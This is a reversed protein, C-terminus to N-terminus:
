RSQRHGHTPQTTHGNSTGIPTRVHVSMVPSPTSSGEHGGAVWEPRGVREVVNRGTKVEALLPRSEESVSSTGGASMGWAETEPDSLQLSGSGTCVLAHSCDDARGRYHLGGRADHLRGADGVIGQAFNSVPFPADDAGRAVPSGPLGTAAGAHKYPGEVAANGALIGAGGAAIAGASGGRGDEAAGSAALVDQRWSRESARQERWRVRLDEVERKMRMLAEEAAAVTDQLAVAEAVAVRRGEEADAARRRERRVEDLAAAVKATDGGHHARAAAAKKLATAATAAAAEADAVRARLQEQGERAEQAGRVAEAARGREAEVEQWLERERTQLKAIQEVGSTHMQQMRTLETRVSACEIHAKDVDATLAAVSRDLLERQAAHQAGQDHLLRKLEEASSSLAQNQWVLSQVFAAGDDDQAM